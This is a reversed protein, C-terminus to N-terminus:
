DLDNYGGQEFWRDAEETTEFKPIEPKPKAPAAPKAASSSVTTPARRRRRSGRSKPTKPPTTDQKPPKKGQPKKPEERVPRPEAAPQTGSIRQLFLIEQRVPELNEQYQGDEGKPFFENFLRERTNLRAYLQELAKTDFGAQTGWHQVAEALRNRMIPLMRTEEAQQELRTRQTDAHERARREKALEANLKLTDWNKRQDEVWAELAGPKTVLEEIKDTIEQLAAKEGELQATLSEIQGDRGALTERFSGRHAQGESLLQTVNAIQDSPIFVGDPEVKSGPIEWNQGDARYQLSPLAEWEEDSLMGSEADDVAGADQQPDDDTEATPPSDDEDVPEAGEDDYAPAAPDKDADDTSVFRGQADRASGDDTTPQAPEDGPAEDGSEPPEDGGILDDLYQDATEQDVVGAPAEPVEAM